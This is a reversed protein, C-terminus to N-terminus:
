SRGSFQLEQYNLYNAVQNPFYLSGIKAQHSLTMGLYKVLTEALYHKVYKKLILM